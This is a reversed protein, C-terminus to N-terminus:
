NLPSSSSSLVFGVNARKLDQINRVILDTALDWVPKAAHTPVVQPVREEVMPSQLLHLCTM